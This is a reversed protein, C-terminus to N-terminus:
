LGTRVYPYSPPSPVCLSSSLLLGTLGHLNAENQAWYCGSNNILRSRSKAKNHAFPHARDAWPPSPRAFFQMGVGWPPADSQLISRPPVPPFPSSAQLSHVLLRSPSTTTCKGPTSRPRRRFPSTSVFPRCLAIFDQRPSLDYFRHGADGRARM